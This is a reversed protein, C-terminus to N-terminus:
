RKGAKPVQYGRRDWHKMAMVQLTAHVTGRLFPIQSLEGM